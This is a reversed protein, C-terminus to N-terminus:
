LDYPANLERVADETLLAAINTQEEKTGCAVYRFGRMLQVASDALAKWSEGHGGGYLIEDAVQVVPAHRPPQAQQKKFRGAKKHRGGRNFSKYTKKAPAATSEDVSGAGQEAKAGGDGDDEHHDSGSESSGGASGSEYGSGSKVHADWSIPIGAQELLLKLMGDENSEEIRVEALQRQREDDRQRQRENEAKRRGKHGRYATQIAVSSRRRRERQDQEQKQRKQKEKQEEDHEQVDAGGGGGGFLEESHKLLYRLMADDMAAEAATSPLAQESAPLRQRTANRQQKRILWGRAASQIALTSTEHPTRIRVRRQRQKDPGDGGGDESDDDGDVFTSGDGVDVENRGEASPEPNDLEEAHGLLYELMGASDLHPLTRAPEAPAGGGGGDGGSAVAANAANRRAERDLQRELRKRESHGRWSAQIAVSSSRRRSRVASLDNSQQGHDDRGDNGGHRASSSSSAEAASDREAEADESDAAASSSSTTEPEDGGDKDGDGGGHHAISAIYAELSSFEFSDRLTEFCGELLPLLPDRTLGRVSVADDVAMAFAVASGRGRRGKSPLRQSWEFRKNGEAPVQIRLRLEDSSRWAKLKLTRGRLKVVGKITLSQLGPRLSGRKKNSAVLPAIVEPIPRRREGALGGGGGEGGASGLVLGAAAPDSSPSIQGLAAVPLTKDGSHGQVRAQDFFGRHSGEAGKPSQFHVATTSTAQPQQQHSGGVDGAQMAAKRAEALVLQIPSQASAM